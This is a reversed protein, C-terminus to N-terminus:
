RASTITITAALSADSPALAVLHSLQRDAAAVTSKVCEVRELYLAGGYGRVCVRGAARRIKHKILRLDDERGFDYTSLNLRITPRQDVVIIQDGAVAGTAAAITLLLLNLMADEM